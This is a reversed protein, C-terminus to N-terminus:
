SSPRPCPTACASSFSEFHFYSAQFPQNRTKTAGILNAQGVCVLGMYIYGVFLGVVLCGVSFHHFQCRERVRKAVRIGFLLQDKRCRPQSLMEEEKLVHQQRFRRQKPRFVAVGRVSLIMDPVTPAKWSLTWIRRQRAPQFELWGLSPVLKFLCLASSDLKHM